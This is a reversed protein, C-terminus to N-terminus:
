AALPTRYREELTRIQKWWMDPLVDVIASSVARLPEGSASEMNLSHPFQGSFGDLNVPQSWVNKVTVVIQASDGEALIPRTIRVTATLAQTIASVEEGRASTPNMWATLGLVLLGLLTHPWSNRHTTM